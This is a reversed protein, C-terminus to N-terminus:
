WNFQPLDSIADEVTVMPFLDALKTPFASNHSDKFKPGLLSHLSMPPKSSQHSPTPLSPLPQDQRAAIMIFRQRTQPAGYHAAQTLLDTLMRECLVVVGAQLVTYKIQYSSPKILM